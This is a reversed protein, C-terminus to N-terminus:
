LALKFFCKQIQAPPVLAVANFHKLLNYITIADNNWRAVKRLAKISTGKFLPQTTKLMNLAIHRIM